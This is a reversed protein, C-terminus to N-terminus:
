LIGNTSATPAGRQVDKHYNTFIIKQVCPSHRHLVDNIGFGECPTQGLCAFQGCLGLDLTSVTFTKVFKYDWTLLLLPSFHRFWFDFTSLLRFDSILVSPGVWFDGVDLLLCCVVPELWGVPVGVLRELLHTHIFYHTHTNPYFFDRYYWLM